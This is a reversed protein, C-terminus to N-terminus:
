EKGVTATTTGDTKTIVKSIEPRNYHVVAVARVAGVPYEGDATCNASKPLGEATFNEVFRSDTVVVKFETGSVRNVKLKVPKDGATIDHTLSVTYDTIDALGLSTIDQSKEGNATDVNIIFRASAERANIEDAVTDITNLINVIGDGELMTKVSSLQNTLDDIDTDTLSDLNDLKSKLDAGIDQVKDVLANLETTREELGANYISKIADIANKLVGLQESVQKGDIDTNMLFKEADAITRKLNALDLPYTVAM